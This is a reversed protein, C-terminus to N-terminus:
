LGRSHRLSEFPSPYSPSIRGAKYWCNCSLFPSAESSKSTRDGRGPRDREIFRQKGRDSSPDGARPFLKRRTQPLRRHHTPTVSDPHLLLWRTLRELVRHENGPTHAAPSRKKQAHQGPMWLQQLNSGLQVVDPRVDPSAGAKCPTLMFCRTVEVQRMGVIHRLVERIIKRSRLQVAAPHRPESINGPFPGSPNPVVPSIQYREVFGRVQDVYDSVHMRHIRVALSNADNTRDVTMGGAALDKEALPQIFFGHTEEHGGVYLLTPKRRYACRRVNRVSASIGLSIERRNRRHPEPQIGDNQSVNCFQRQSFAQDDCVLIQNLVLLRRDFRYEIKEVELLGM